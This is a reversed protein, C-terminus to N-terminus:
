ARYKTRLEDLTLERGADDVLDRLSLQKSRWIKARDEGLVEDQFTTDRQKLFEGFTMKRDVPGFMSARQGEVAQMLRTVGRVLCRCNWHLPPSTFPINHGVPELTLSDWELGDRVGCSVCTDNDLVSLWGMTPCIDTNMRLSARNADRATQMISIHDLERTKERLIVRVPNLATENNEKKLFTSMQALIGAESYQDVYKADLRNLEDWAEDNKGALQLYMPLRLRDAIMLSEAGDASYAEHLKDCAEIYKKEKKLATAEKLLSRANNLAAIERTHATIGEIKTSPKPKQAPKPKTAAALQKISSKVLKKLISDFSM